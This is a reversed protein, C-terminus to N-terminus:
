KKVICKDLDSIIKEKNMKKPLLFCALIQEERQQTLWLAEAVNEDPTYQAALTKLSVFSAGVQQRTNMGLHRLSSISGWNQLRRIRRSIEKIKEETDKNLIVYDM